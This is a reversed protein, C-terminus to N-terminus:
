KGGENEASRQKKEAEILKELERKPEADTAQTQQAPEGAGYLTQSFKSKFRESLSRRGRGDQDGGSGGDKEQQKVIQAETRMKLEEESTVIEDMKLIRKNKKKKKKVRGTDEVIVGSSDIGLIVNEV